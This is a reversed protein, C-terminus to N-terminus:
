RWRPMNGTDILEYQNGPLLQNSYYFVRNKFYKHADPFAQKFEQKCINQIKRPDVFFYKELLSAIYDFLHHGIFGDYQLSYIKEYERHVLQPEPFQTHLGLKIRTSSDIFVDLDCYIIRTPFFQNDLELLTNEGHMEFFIGTQRVCNCFINIIPRMIFDLTFSIPDAQHYNILQVM